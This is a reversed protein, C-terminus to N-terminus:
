VIKGLHLHKISILNIFFLIKIHRNMWPLDRDDCIIIKNPVFNSMIYTITNNFISVQEDVDLDTLTPEWDFM